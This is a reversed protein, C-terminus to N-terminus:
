LSLPFNSGLTKGFSPVGGACPATGPVAPHPTGPHQPVAPREPPRLLPLAPVSGQSTIPPRPLPGSAPGQPGSHYGRKRRPRRPAAPPNQESSHRPRTAPNCISERPCSHFWPSWNPPLQLWGLLLYHLKCLYSPPRPMAPTQTNKSLLTLLM